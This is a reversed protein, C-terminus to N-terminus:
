FLAAVAKFGAVVIGAIGALLSVISVMGGRVTPSFSLLIGIVGLVIAAIALVLGWIAGTAFSALAAVIALISPLSFSAKTTTGTTEM